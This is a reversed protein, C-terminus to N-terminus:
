ISIEMPGQGTGRVMPFVLTDLYKVYRLCRHGLFCFPHEPNSNKSFLIEGSDVGGGKTSSVSYVYGEKSYVYLRGEDINFSIM